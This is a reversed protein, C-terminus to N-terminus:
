ARVTARTLGCTRPAKYCSTRTRLACGIMANCLHCLLSRVAGTVHNHDVVLMQDARGCIACKGAQRVLMADYAELSIGYHYRLDAARAREPYLQVYQKRRIIKCAKCVPEIGYLCERQRPFESIPKYALCKSRRVFGCATHYIAPMLLGNTLSASHASIAGSKGASRGLGVPPRGRIASRAARVPM